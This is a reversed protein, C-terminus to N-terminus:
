VPLAPWTKDVAGTVDVSMELSFSFCIAFSWRDISSVHELSVKGELSCFVLNSTQNYELSHKQGLHTNWVQSMSLASLCLLCMTDQYQHDCSWLCEVGHSTPWPIVSTNSDWGSVDLVFLGCVCGICCSHKCCFFLLNNMELFSASFNQYHGVVTSSCHAFASGPLM